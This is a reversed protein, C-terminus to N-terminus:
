AFPYGRDFDNAPDESASQRDTGFGEAFGAGEDTVRTIAPQLIYPRLILQAEADALEQAAALTTASGVPAATKDRSFYEVEATGAKARKLYRQDADPHQVSAAAPNSAITGALLATAEEISNPIELGTSIVDEPLAEVDDSNQRPWKTTQDPDAKAGKFEFFDIRRTSAVLMRAKDDTSLAMWAARRNIEVALTIDAEEVTLYSKYANGGIM